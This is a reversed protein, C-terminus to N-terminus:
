ENDEAIDNIQKKSLKEKTLYFSYTDSGAFRPDEYMNIGFTHLARKMEEILGPTDKYDASIVQFDKPLGTKEDENIQNFTKINKM